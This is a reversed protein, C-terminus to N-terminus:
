GESRSLEDRDLLRRNPDTELAEDAVRAAGGIDDADLSTVRDDTDLDEGPVPSAVTIVQVRTIAARDAV